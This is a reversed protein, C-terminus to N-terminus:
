DTLLNLLMFTPLMYAEFINVAHVLLPGLKAPHTFGIGAITEM